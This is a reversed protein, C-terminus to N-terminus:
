ARWRPRLAGRRPREHRPWPQRVRRPPRAVQSGAQFGGVRQRLRERDQWGSATTRAWPAWAAARAPAGTRGLGPQAHPRTAAPTRRGARRASAADPAHGPDDPHGRAGLGSGAPAGRPTPPPAGAPGPAGVADHRPLGPPAGGSRRPRWRPRVGPEGRGRATPAAVVAQATARPRPGVVTARRWRWAPAVSRGGGHRGEAGDPGSAGAADTEGAHQRASGPWRADRQGQPVPLPRRRYRHSAAAQHAARRRWAGVPAATVGRGCGMGPLAVRVRLRQL